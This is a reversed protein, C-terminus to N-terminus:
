KEKAEESQQHRLKRFEGLPSGFTKKFDRQFRSEDGGRVLEVIQSITLRPDEALKIANEMKLRKALRKPTTKLDRRFLARLHVPSLSVREALEDTLYEETDAEQPNDISHSHSLSLSERERLLEAVIRVRRDIDKNMIKRGTSRSFEVKDIKRKRRQSFGDRAFACLNRKIASVVIL